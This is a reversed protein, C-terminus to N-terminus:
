VRRLAKQQEQQVKQKVFAEYAKESRRDLTKSLRRLGLGSNASDGIQASAISAPASRGDESASTTLTSLDGNSYQCTFGARIVRHAVHGLAPTTPPTTPMGESGQERWADVAKSTFAQQFVERSQVGFGDDSHSVGLKALTELWGSELGDSTNGQSRRPAKSAAATPSAVRGSADGPLSGLGALFDTWANEQGLRPPTPTSVSGHLLSRGGVVKERCKQGDSHRAALGALVDMWRSDVAGSVEDIGRGPASHRNNGPRLERHGQGLLPSSVHRSVQERKQRPSGRSQQRRPIGVPAGGTGGNAAALDARASFMRRPSTTPSVPTGLGQMPTFSGSPSPSRSVPRGILDADGTARITRVVVNLNPEPSPSGSRRRHLQHEISNQRMIDPLDRRQRGRELGAAAKSPSNDEPPAKSLILDVNHYRSPGLGLDHIARTTGSKSLPSLKPDMGANARRAVFDIGLQHLGNRSSGPVTDLYGTLRPSAM